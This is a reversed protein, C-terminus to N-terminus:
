LLSTFSLNRLMAHKEFHQRDSRVSALTCEEALQGWDLHECDSLRQEAGTCRLSSMWIADTGTQPGKSPMYMEGTALGFGMQRCAVQSVNRSLVGPACITGWKGGHYIDVRGADTAGGFLRLEGEVPSMHSADKEMHWPSGFPLLVGLLLVIVALLKRVSGLGLRLGGAELYRIEAATMSAVRSGVSACRMNQKFHAAKTTGVLAFSSPSKSLIYGLALEPLSAGKESALERARQRRQVNAKTCYATRLQHKRWADANAPTLPEDPQLAEKGPESDWACNDAMFGKALCEWSLMAVHRKTGRQWTDHLSPTM